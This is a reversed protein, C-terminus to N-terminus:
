RLDQRDFNKVQISRFAVNADPSVGKCPLGTNYDSPRMGEEAISNKAYRAGGLLSHDHHLPEIAHSHSPAHAQEAQEDEHEQNQRDGRQDLVQPGLPALGM